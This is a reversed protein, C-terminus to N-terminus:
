AKVMNRHLRHSPPNLSRFVSLHADVQSARPPRDCSCPRMDRRAKRGCRHVDLPFHRHVEQRGSVNRGWLVERGEMRIEDQEEPGSHVMRLVAARQLSLTLAKMGLAELMGLMGLVAGTATM